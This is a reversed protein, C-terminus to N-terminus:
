EHNLHYGLHSSHYNDTSGPTTAARMCFPTRSWGSNGSVSASTCASRRRTATSSPSRSRRVFGLSRAREILHAVLAAGIGQRQRQPDVVLANLSASHRIKGGEQLRLCIAGALEAGLFAGFWYEGARSLRATAWALPQALAEEVAPQFAHPFARLGALRLARYRAADAPGLRRLTPTAAPAAHMM